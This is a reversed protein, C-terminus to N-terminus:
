FARPQNPMTSRARRRRVLAGILALGALGAVSGPASSPVNCSCGGPSRVFVHEPVEAEGGEHSSSGGSSKGGKGGSEVTGPEGGMTAPENGDGAGGPQTPQGGEVVPNGGTGAGAVGAAEGGAGGEGTTPNQVCKGKDDCKGTDNECPTGV